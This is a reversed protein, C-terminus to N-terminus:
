KTKKSKELIKTIFRPTLTKIPNITTKTEGIPGKIKFSVGFLGEGIEKPIIIKGIIPIKSLFKNLNKAPVLTGRLSTLGNVDKYGDMLVSISSGIAYLEDLKIFGKNNNIHMELKVFSLGEGEALDALGGFDALALLKILAPANIIKFNEITLKSNTQDPEIISSFLLTGGTLGKFFKYESLLPQPLDSYIELYKKKNKKDSKLSIDLFKNNGFDGKSSIKVFKGKSITGILRFNVLKKLMPTEVNKLNIEINKNIKSLINGHNKKNLIKNLNAADFKKGNIKIAKNFNIIFDNKPSNKYFTKVKIKKLSVIKDRDLKLGEILILNKKESYSIKEFNILEKNKQFKTSIKSVTNQNKKYNILDISLKEIFEFDININAINDSFNNKFRFDLYDSNNISYKGIVNIKNKNDSAYRINLDTKKLKLENINNKLFINKFPQTTKLVAKEVKGTSNFEYNIFKYTNDLTISLNHDLNIKVSSDKKNFNEFINENTLYKKLNKKNLIMKTSLESQINVNKNKIIQINGNEILLGDAESKINKILVNTSDSFFNFSTNKLFIDKNVIAGMETVEGRAIFNDLEFDKNYFIELTTKIKGNNVKNMILSNLNSPKTKIIIKKLQEINIEKSSIDIKKIKPDSKILSFFDLYVKINKIPIKLNKYNIEPNETEIFLSLKKVEIKIKIKELELLINKNKKIIKNSIVKNFKNTEYGKTSLIITFLGLIFLLILSTKLILKKM